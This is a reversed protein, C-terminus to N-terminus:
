KPKRKFVVQCKDPRIHSSCPPPALAPLQLCTMHYDCQQCFNPTKPLSFTPVPTFGEPADTENLRRREIELRSPTYIPLPM